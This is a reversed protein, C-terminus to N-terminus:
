QNQGTSSQLMESITTLIPMARSIDSGTGLGGVLLVPSKVMVDFHFSQM